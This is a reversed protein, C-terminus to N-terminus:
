FNLISLRRGFHFRAANSSRYSLIVLSKSAAGIATIFQFSQGPLSSCQSSCTACSVPLLISCRAPQGEPLLLVSRAVFGDLCFHDLGLLGQVCIWPFSVLVAGRLFIELAPFL